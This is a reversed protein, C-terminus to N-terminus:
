RSAARPPADAAGDPAVPEGENAPNAARDGPLSLIRRVVEALYQARRDAARPMQPLAEELAEALARENPARVMRGHAEIAFFESLTVGAVKLISRLNGVSPESPAKTPTGRLNSFFSASVGAKICWQRETLEAPQIAALREAIELASAEAEEKKKPAKAMNPIDWARGPMGIEYIGLMRQNRRQSNIINTPRHVHHCVGVEERLDLAEYGM